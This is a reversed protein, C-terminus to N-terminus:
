NLSRISFTEISTDFNPLFERLRLKLHLDVDAAVGVADGNRVVAQDAGIGLRDGEAPLIVAQQGSCAALGIDRLDPFQEPRFRWRLSFRWAGLDGREGQPFWARVAAARHADDLYEAAALLGSGTRWRPLLGCSSIGTVNGLASGSRGQM